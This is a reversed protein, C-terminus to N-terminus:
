NEVQFHLPLISFNREVFRQKSSHENYNNNCRDITIFYVNRKHREVSIHVTKHKDCCCIYRRENLSVFVASLSCIPRRADKKREKCRKWIPSAGRHTEKKKTKM